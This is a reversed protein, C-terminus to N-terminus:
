STMETPTKTLRLSNWVMYGVLALLAGIFLWFIAGLSSASGLAIEVTQWTSYAFLSLILIKLIFLCRNTFVRLIEAQAETVAERKKKPLNIFRKPDDVLAFWFNFFTLSLFVVTSLIPFTFIMGKSGWDDPIGQADFHIPITDPLASYSSLAVYFALIVLFLSILELQPPYCKNLKQWM